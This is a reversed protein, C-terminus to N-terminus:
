ENSASTAREILSYTCTSDGAPMFSDRQLEQELLSGVLSMESKCPLDSVSVLNWLPCHYICLRLEKGEGPQVEALFGQESLIVALRDLRNSESLDRVAPGLHDQLNAIRERFFEELLGVEGKEQLFAALDRLLEGEKQPFLGHGGSTLEYLVHPRGPGGRKVGSRRVLGKAALVKLHDRITERALESKAELDVLSAMGVRKLLELIAKQSEGLGAASTKDM